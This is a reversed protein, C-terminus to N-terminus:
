RLWDSRQSAPRRVMSCGIAKSTGHRSASQVNEGRPYRGDSDRPAMTGVYAGPVGNSIAALLAASPAKPGYRTVGIRPAVVTNRVYRSPARSQDGIIPSAAAAHSAALGDNKYMSMHGILSTGTEANTVAATIPAMESKRCRERQTPSRDPMTMRIRGLRM